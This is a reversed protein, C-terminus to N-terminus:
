PARLQRWLAAPAIAAFRLWAAAVALTTGAAGGGAGWRLWYRALGRHKHFAVFLPRRQSSTGKLHTVAVGEAVAVRLGLGRVRRCLDLDEAHLRYGEDFGGVQMFVARPLLMLAGSTADVEQLAQATNAPLHLADAAGLAHRFARMLTPDRRRAAAEPQGQADRVDAGLLGIDPTAALIALMRALTDNAVFCDPNVFALVAGRAERAGQNCAVGFGPNHANRLVRLRADSGLVAVAGDSSGNDVVLVERVGSAALLRRVCEGLVAGSDHAVVIASLRAGM